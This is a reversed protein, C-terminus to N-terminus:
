TITELTNEKYSLIYKEKSLDRLQPDEPWNWGQQAQAFNNSIALVIIAMWMKAFLNMLTEKGNTLGVETSGARM